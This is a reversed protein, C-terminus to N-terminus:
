FHKKPKIKSFVKTTILFIMIVILLFFGSTLIKEILKINTLGAIFGGALTLFETKNESPFLIEITNGIIKFMEDSSLLKRDEHFEFMYDEIKENDGFLEAIQNQFDFLPNAKMMYLNDHKQKLENLFNEAQDYYRENQPMFLSAESDPIGPSTRLFSHVEFLYIKDYKKEADEITKIINKRWETERSEKRNYDIEQRVKDSTIILTPINRRKLQKDFMLVAESARLDCTRHETRNKGFYHPAVLIVIKSM